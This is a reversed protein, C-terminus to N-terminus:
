WPDCRDQDQDKYQADSGDYCLTVIVAIVM